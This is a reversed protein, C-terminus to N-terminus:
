PLGSGKSEDPASGLACSQPSITRASDHIDSANTVRNANRTNVPTVHGYMIYTYGVGVPLDYRRLLQPSPGMASSRSADMEPWACTLSAWRLREGESM